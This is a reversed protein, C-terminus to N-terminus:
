WLTLRYWTMWGSLAHTLAINFRHQVPAIGPGIALAACSNRKLWCNCCCLKETIGLQIVCDIAGHLRPAEHTQTSGCIKLCPSQLKFPSILVASVQAASPNLLNLVKQANGATSSFDTQLSNLRNQLCSCITSFYVMRQPDSCLETPFYGSKYYM